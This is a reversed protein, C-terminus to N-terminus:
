EGQDVRRLAAKSDQIADQWQQRRLPNRPRSGELSYIIRQVLDKRGLDAAKNAVNKASSLVTYQEVATTGREVEQVLDGRARAVLSGIALFDYRASPNKDVAPNGLYGRKIADLDDYSVATCARSEVLYLIFEVSRAHDHPRSREFKVKSARDRVSSFIEMARHENGGVCYLGFSLMQLDLRTPDFTSAEDLIQAGDLPFGDVHRDQALFRAARASEPHRAHWIEAAIQPNGWLSTIQLLMLGLIIGYMGFGAYALLGRRGAFQGLGLVLALVVGISAVYNRHEFYLELSLWTSELSHSALFWLVMFAPLPWRPALGISIALLGVWLTLAAYAMLRSMGGYLPYHDHFPGLAQIDPALMLRLYEFLVVSQTLVREFMTFHRSDFHGGMGLTESVLMRIMYAALLIAPTFIFIGRWRKYARPSPANRMLTRDLVLVLLPYAAASEKSLVGLGLGSIVGLTMLVFATAQRQPILARGIIHLCLGFLVFFAALTAMRQVILLSSSALLPLVLWIAAASLAVWPAREKHSFAHSHIALLFAFLGVLLGNVLHLLINTIFLPQLTDPWSQAHPLFTALAVPRGTPGATGSFVFELASNLDKVSSLGGLNALDDFHLAGGVAPLYAYFVLTVLLSWLGFFTLVRQRPAM